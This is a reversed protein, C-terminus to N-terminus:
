QSAAGERPTSRSVTYTRGRLIFSLQVRMRAASTSMLEKVNVGDWTTANFLAYVMAELISSKGPGTDGLLAFLGVDTFEIRRATTFSRIGELEIWLPTM